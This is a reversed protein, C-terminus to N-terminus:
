RAARDLVDSATGETTVAPPEESRLAAGRKRFRTIALGVFASALYAYALVVLVVQTHTVVLM